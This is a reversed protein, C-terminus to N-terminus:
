KTFFKNIAMVLLNILFLFILIIIVTASAKELFLIEPNNIWLYIQLPLVTAPDFFSKPYVTVFTMMGILMLPATEGIARAVGLIYGTLIKPMAVPIVHDFTAQMKSAGLALAAERLSYPVSSLSDRTNIIIIPLIMIALVIGGVIPTSRPLAFFNIVLLLGLLGFIISPISALNRINIDIFYILYNKPAFEQLYIGTIVGIPLCILTMIFIVYLTGLMASGIGALEAYSSDSNVFFDYNFIKIIKNKDNMERLFNIQQEELLLNEDVVFNNNIFYHAEANLNIHVDVTNQINDDAMIVTVQKLASNSTLNYISNIDMANYKNDSLRMLSKKITTSADENNSIQSKNVKIILRNTFFANYSKQMSDFVLMGILGIILAICFASYYLSMKNIIRRKLSLYLM